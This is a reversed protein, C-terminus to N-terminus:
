DFTVRDALLVGNVVRSGSVTVASGNALSAASGNVFAVGGGSADVLQDRVGFSATSGFNQVTGILTFASSTGTASSVRIRSAQLRGNAIAGDVVVRAGNGLVSGSEASITAASGDVQTGLISFSNPGNYNSVVGAVHVLTGATSPLPNWPEIVSASLIGPLLSPGARVRVLDGNILTGLDLGGTLLATTYNVLLNGVTFLGLGSTLGQVTGTLIPLTQTSQEIRTARLTGPAGPLGWVQLTAGPHVGALGPLDAWVTSADTQVTTGEIVFSGQVPDVSAVAGRLDASSEIRRAVGSSFDANVPGTVKVTMGLRLAPADHVSLEAGNIDYRLGEVIISGLGGVSGVGVAATTSVGTGGSGVGDDGGAVSGDSGGPSTSGSSSGPGGAGDSGGPASASSGSATGPLGGALTAGGDGGGGCSLLLALPLALIASRLLRVM